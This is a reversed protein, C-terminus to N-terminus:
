ANIEAQQYLKYKSIIDVIEDPVLYRVSHNKKLKERVLTSSLPNSIDFLKKIKMRYKILLKNSLIIDIINDGEREMVLLEYKQLLEEAKVWNPLDKLNDSGIVFWIDHGLYEKTLLDLTEVTKLCRDAEIEIKSIEFKPNRCCVANLMLERYNSSVLGNKEYKDGVPVFLVKSVSDFTDAIAQALAFHANTPPNFSGGFMVISNKM